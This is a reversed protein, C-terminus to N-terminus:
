HSKQKLLEEYRLYSDYSLGELQAAVRPSLGNSIRDRIQIVKEVKSPWDARQMLTPPGRKKKAHNNGHGSLDEFRRPGVRRKVRNLFQRVHREEVDERWTLEVHTQAEAWNTLTVTVFTTQPDYCIESWADIAELDRDPVRDADVARIIQGSIDSSPERWAPPTSTGPLTLTLATGYSRRLTEHETHLCRGSITREEATTGFLNCLEEDVIWILPDLHIHILARYPHNL